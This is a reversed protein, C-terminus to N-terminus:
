VKVFAARKIAAALSDRFAISTDTAASVDDVIAAQAILANNVLIPIAEENITVSRFNSDPYVPVIIKTIRQSVLKGDQKIRRVLVAVKFPGWRGAEVAPGVVKVVKLVRASSREAAGSREVAAIANAPPLALAVVTLVITLRRAVAGRRVSGRSDTRPSRPTCTMGERIRLLVLVLVLKRM